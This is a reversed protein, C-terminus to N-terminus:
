LGCKVGLEQATQGDLHMRGIGDDERNPAARGQERIFEQEGQVLAQPPEPTSVPQSQIYANRTKISLRNASQGSGGHGSPPEATTRGIPAGPAVDRTKIKPSESRVRPAPEVDAPIDCVATEKTRVQPPESGAQPAPLVDPRPTRVASERTKIQTQRM